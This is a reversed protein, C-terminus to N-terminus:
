RPYAPLVQDWPVLARPRGKSAEGPWLTLHFYKTPSPTAVRAAGVTPGCPTRTGDFSKRTWAIARPAKPPVQGTAGSQVGTLRPEGAWVRDGMTSMPPTGRIYRVVSSPQTCAISARVPAFIHSVCIPVVANLPPPAAGAPM